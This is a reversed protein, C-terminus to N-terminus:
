AVSSYLKRAIFKRLEETWLVLSAVIGIGFFQVTHIPVTHFFQSLPHWYVVAAHLVIALVLGSLLWTNKLSNWSFVSHHSSRCNLLNFWQCVALVTFTETQVLAPSIGASSRYVFWGFTSIVSAIVMLPIRLLLARDLLPENTPIPPRLM